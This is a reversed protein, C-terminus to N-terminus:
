TEGHGPRASFLAITHDAKGAVLVTGGDASVIVAALATSGAVTV